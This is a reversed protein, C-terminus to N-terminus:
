HASRLTCEASAARLERLTDRLSQAGTADNVIVVHLRAVKIRLVEVLLGLVIRAAIMGRVSSRCAHRHQAARNSRITLTGGEPMADVANLVLNILADRIENEAAIREATGRRM